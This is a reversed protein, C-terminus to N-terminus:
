WFTLEIDRPEGWARLIADLERELLGSHELLLQRSEPAQTDFRLQLRFRSLSLYLTTHPLVAPDIPLEVEWNGAEAVAPDGCFAGIHRALAALLAVMRQQRVLVASVAPAAAHAIHSGLANRQKTLGADADRDPTDDHSASDDTHAFPTPAAPANDSGDDDHAARTADASDDQSAAERMRAERAPRRWARRGKLLAAYNFDDASADHPADSSDASGPIIRLHRSGIYTM